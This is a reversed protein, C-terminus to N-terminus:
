PQSAESVADSTVSEDRDKVPPLTSTAAVTVVEDAASPVSVNRAFPETANGHLRAFTAGLTAGYIVHALVMSTPRGIRDRSPRRMLGLKPIWGMYSVAWIAVGFLAGGTASRLPRPLLGFLAGGAAGYGVHAAATALNLAHGRPRHGALTLIRRTLKRPPPEGLFGLSKAAAFELTMTGTAVVGAAAGMLLRRLIPNM